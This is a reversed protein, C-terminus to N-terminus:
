VLKKLIKVNPSNFQLLLVIRLLIMLSFFTKKARITCSYQTLVAVLSLRQYRRWHFILHGVKFVDIHIEDILHVDDIRCEEIFDSYFIM